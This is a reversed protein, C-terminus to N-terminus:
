NCDLFSTQDYLHISGPAFWGTQIADSSPHLPLRVISYHPFSCCLEATFCAITPQSHPFHLTRPISVDNCGMTECTGAGVGCWAKVDLGLVLIQDLLFESGIVM